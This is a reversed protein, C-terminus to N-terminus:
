KNKKEGDDSDEKRKTDGDKTKTDGDADIKVKLDGDKLKFDGDEDEKIKLDGYKFKGDEMKVVKGNVVEGTVGYITDKTETNVYLLVPKKTKVDVMLGTSADKELEVSRENNLDYYASAARDECSALVFLSAIAPLLFTKKM